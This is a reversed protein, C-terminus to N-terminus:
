GLLALLADAAGVGVCFGVLAALICKFVMASNKRSELLPPYTYTLHAVGVVIWLILNKM